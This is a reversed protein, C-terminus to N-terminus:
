YDCLDDHTLCKLTLRMCQRALCSHKTMNISKRIIWGQPLVDLRRGEVTM